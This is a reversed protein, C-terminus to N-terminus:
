KVKPSLKRSLWRPRVVIPQVVGHALISRAMSELEDADFVTRPQDPDEDIDCVRLRLAEGPAQSSAARLNALTAEALRPRAKLTVVPRPAREILPLFPSTPEDTMM